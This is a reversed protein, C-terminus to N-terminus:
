SLFRAIASATEEHTMVGYHNAAIEVVEAGPVRAVFADRDAPSVVFGQGPLIPLASRVLLAPVGISGWLERPDHAEGYALDELVASRDTRSRVGGEVDVLEYRFAREWRASWPVVSGVERVRALYEEASGYTAGLREVARRIAAGTEPEPPGVADVLVLRRVRAPALEAAQMGVFAGMSHGILDFPAESLLGAAAVVDHAHNLWGYTGPPTTASLGRGRLDVAAVPRGDDALREALLDFARGNSSLGPVCLVLRGERPGSRHVRLTGSALALDLPEPHV